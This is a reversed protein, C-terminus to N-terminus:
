VVRPQTTSQTTSPTVHHTPAILHPVQLCALACLLDIHDTSPHVLAARGYRAAVEERATEEAQTVEALRAAGGSLLAAAKVAAWDARSQSIRQKRAFLRRILYIV